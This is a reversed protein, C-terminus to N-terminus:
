KKVKKKATKVEEESKKEEKNAVAKKGSQKLSEEMKKRNDGLRKDVTIAFSTIIPQVKKLIDIVENFELGKMCPAKTWCLEYNIGLDDLKDTEKAMTLLYLNCTISGDEKKTVNEITCIGRKGNKGIHKVTVGNTSLWDYQYEKDSFLKKLSNFVERDDENNKPDLKEGRKGVKKTAPKEKDTKSKTAASKKEGKKVNTSTEKKSSKKAPKKEEDEEEDDEVEEVEDALAAADDEESDEEEDDEETEEDEEESDTEEDEEESDDADEEEDEVDDEVEEVEDADETFSEVMEILTETDEGEMGEVGEKELKKLLKERADEESKATINIAKLKKELSAALSSKKTM